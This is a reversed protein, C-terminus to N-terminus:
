SAAARTAGVGVANMLERFKQRLTPDSGGLPQPKHILELSTLIKRVEEVQGVRYKAHYLHYRREWILEPPTEKRATAIELAKRWLEVAREWHPKAQADDDAAGALGEYCLAMGVVCDTKIPEGEPPEEPRTGGIEQYLGLARNFKGVRLLLEAVDYRINEIQGGKEPGGNAGLWQILRQALREAGEVKVSAAETNSRDLLQKVEDITALFLGSLVGGIQGEKGQKVMLALYDELLRLAEDIKGLKQFADIRMKLIRGRMEEGVEIRSEMTDIVKLADDPLEVEPYLYVEAANLYAAEIWKELEARKDEPVKAKDAFETFELLQRVVLRAQPLIVGKDKSPLITERFQELHSLPIWYRAEVYFPSDRGVARFANAAEGFKGSQYLVVGLYYKQDPDEEGYNANFWRLAEAYAQQNQETKDTEYVQGVLSLHYNAAPAAFQFTPFESAVKKFLEAAQQKAGAPAEEAKSLEFHLAAKSYLAMPYFEDSPETKSLYLDYLKLAERYDEVAGSTRAATAARDARFRIQWPEAEALDIKVDGVLEALVGEVIVPWPGGEARLADFMEMGKDTKAADGAARGEVVYAEAEAVKMALGYLDAYLKGRGFFERATELTERAKKPKGQAILTRAKEYAAQIKVSEPADPDAAYALNTLADEFKGLERQAMGIILHAYYKAPSGPSLDTFGILRTVADNLIPARPRGGEEAPEGEPTLWGLYYGVWGTNFDMSRRLDALQRVIDANVYRDRNPDRDIESFWQNSEQLAETYAEHAIRLIERATDADGARGFSIELGQLYQTLWAGDIVFIMNALDRRLTIAELRKSTRAEWQAAPIAQWAQDANEIAYRYYDLARRFAQERQPGSLTQARQVEAAAKKANEGAPAPRVTGQSPGPTPPVPMEGGHKKLYAEMLSKLGRRQLGEYFPDRAQAFATRAFAGVLGVLIAIRLIRGIMDGTEGAVNQNTGQTPAENSPGPPGGM